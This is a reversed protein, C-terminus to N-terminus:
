WAKQWGAVISWDRQMQPGNLDQALPLIGEVAFRHGKLAGKRIYYNVGLGGELWTGGHNAPDMPPAMRMGAFRRDEGQIDGANELTLRSSVSLSDTLRYSLWGTGMIRDGFAFDFDNEDLHIRSRLQAGGSLDGNQWLWTIGPLLDWTGTSPHMPYARDSLDGVPASFGLNLHV